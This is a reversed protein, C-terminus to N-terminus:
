RIWGSDCFDKFNAGDRDWNACGFRASLLKRLFADRLFQSFCRVTMSENIFFPTFIVLPVSCIYVQGIQKIVFWAGDIQCRSASTRVPM